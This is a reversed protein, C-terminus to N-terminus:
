GNSKFSLSGRQVPLQTYFTQKKPYLNNESSLTPPPLHLYHSSSPSSFCFSINLIHTITHIETWNKWKRQKDHDFVCLCVCVLVCVCVCFPSVFVKRTWCHRHIRRSLICYSAVVATKVFAFIRRRCFVDNTIRVGGACIKRPNQIQTKSGISM